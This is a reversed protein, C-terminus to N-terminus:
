HNANTGATAYVGACLNGREDYEEQPMTEQVGRDSEQEHPAARSWQILLQYARDWRRQADLPSVGDRRIRWSRKKM